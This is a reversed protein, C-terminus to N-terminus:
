VHARGIQRAECVPEASEFFNETLSQDGLGGHASSQHIVRGNPDRIRSQKWGEADFLVHFGIDGDTANIEILVRCEDLDGCPADAQAPLSAGGAIALTLVATAYRALTTM